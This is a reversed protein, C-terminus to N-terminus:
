AREEVIAKLRRLNGRWIRTLVPKGAVEGLRGGMWWPFALQEDWCFRTQGRGGPSLVFRGRGTVLGEHVIGMASGPEWETVRMEDDLRIPGVKTRCRFETGVGRTQGTRFSIREADAMWRVHDEIPEVAAWVTELPADIDTCVTIRM